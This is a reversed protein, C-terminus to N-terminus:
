KKQAYGEYWTTDAIQSGSEEYYKWVGDNKGNLYSGEEKTKGSKFYHKYYGNEMNGAFEVEQQLEGTEYYYKWLGKMEEVLYQGDEKKNGNEFYSHYPGDFKGKSYNEENMVKGNEYFLKRYGNIENNNYICEESNKGNSYFRRLTDVLQNHNYNRTEIIKGFQNYLSYSGNRISPSDTMVSYEEKLIKGDHDYFSKVVTSNNRCSSLLVILVGVILINKKM